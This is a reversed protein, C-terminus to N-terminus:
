ELWIEYIKFSNANGVSTGANVYLKQSIFKEDNYSNINLSITTDGESANYFETYSGYSSSEYQSETIAMSSATLHIRGYNKTNYHIKANLNSFNSLNIKNVTQISSHSFKDSFGWITLSKYNTTNSYNNTTDANKVIGWGDTLEECENGRWYLAYRPMAYLDNTNEDVTQAASTYGSVSGYMTYTKGVSVTTLAKGTLDTTCTTQNVGDSITITESAAGHVIIMKDTFISIDNFYPLRSLIPM